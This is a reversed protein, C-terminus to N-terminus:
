EPSEYCYSGGKHTNCRKSGLLKTSLGFDALKPFNDASLLINQPKLDGHIIKNEKLYILGRLIQIFIKLRDIENKGEYLVPTACCVFKRVRFHLVTSRPAFLDISQIIRFPIPDSFNCENTSVVIFGEISITVINQLALKGTPLQFEKQPRDKPSSLETYVIANPAYPNLINGNIDSLRCTIMHFNSRYM